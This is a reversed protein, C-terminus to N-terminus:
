EQNFEDLKAKYERNVRRYNKIINKYVDCHCSNDWNDCNDKSGHTKDGKTHRGKSYSREPRGFESETYVKNLFNQRQVHKERERLTLFKEIFQQWTFRKGGFLKYITVFPLLLIFM